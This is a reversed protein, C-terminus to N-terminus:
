PKRGTPVRLQVQIGGTARPEIEIRGPMDALHAAVFADVGSALTSVLTYTIWDQRQNERSDILRRIRAVGPTSDVAANFVDPDSLRENALSDEAMLARLSDQAASVRRKEFNHAEALRALTKLLMYASGTQVAFFTGGRLYAGVSAQGWGPILLSRYFAKGPSVRRASDAAAATDRPTQQARVPAAVLAILTLLLLIQNRM